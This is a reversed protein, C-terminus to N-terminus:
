GPTQPMSQALTRAGGRATAGGREARAGGFRRAAPWTRPPCPNVVAVASMQFIPFTDRYCVTRATFVSPSPSFRGAAGSLDARKFPGLVRDM